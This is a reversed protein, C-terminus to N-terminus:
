VICCDRAQQISKNEAECLDWYEAAESGTFAVLLRQAILTEIRTQIWGLQEVLDITPM